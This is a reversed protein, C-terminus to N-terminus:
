LQKLGLFDVLKFSTEVIDGILKQSLYIREIPMQASCNKNFLSFDKRNPCKCRYAEHLHCKNVLNGLETHEIERNKTKISRDATKNEVCTFDGVGDGWIKDFEKLNRRLKEAM